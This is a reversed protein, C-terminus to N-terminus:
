PQYKQCPFFSNGANKVSENILLPCNLRMQKDNWNKKGETTWKGENFLMQVEMSNPPLPTVFNFWSWHTRCMGISRHHKYFYSMLLTLLTPLVNTGWEIVSRLKRYVLSFISWQYSLTRLSLSLSSLLVTASSQKEMAMPACGNIRFTTLQYILSGSSQIAQFHACCFPSNIM